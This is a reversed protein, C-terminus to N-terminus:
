PRACWRACRCGRCSPVRRSSIAPAARCTSRSSAARASRARSGSSGGASASSASCRRSGWGPAGATTKRPSFPEFMREMTLADIGSGNDHIALRVWPGRLRGHGGAREGPITEVNATRVVVEGGEPMADRANLVLNMIVQELQTPDACVRWLGAGLELRLRVREGLLRELMSELAVVRANLDEVQVERHHQRSFALMQRTLESAREGARRIEQLSHRVPHNEALEELALESHGRIVTLLNNFDHAVGGALRGLTAMRQSRELRRAASHLAINLLAIGTMVTVFLLLVVERVNRSIEDLFGGGYGIFHVVPLLFPLVVVEARTHWLLGNAEAGWFQASVPGTERTRFRRLAFAATVLSFPLFWFLDIPTGPAIELWGARDAADVLDVIEWSVFAVGILGCVVRWRTDTARYARRLFRSAVLLGLFVYLLYSPLETRYIEPNLHSPILIFYLLVAFSFAVVAFRQILQLEAATPGSPRPTGPVEEAALLCLMFFALYLADAFIESPGGGLLAPFTPKLLELGLWVAFAGGLLLWFRQERPSEHQGGSGAAALLVLALFLRSVGRTYDTVGVDFGLVPLCYFGVLALELLGTIVVVPHRALLKWM